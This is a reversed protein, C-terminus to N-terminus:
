AFLDHLAVFDPVDMFPVSSLTIFRAPYVQTTEWGPGGCIWVHANFADPEEDKHSRQAAGCAM